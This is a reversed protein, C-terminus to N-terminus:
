NNYDQFAAKLSMFKVFGKWQYSDCDEGIALRRGEWLSRTGALRRAEIVKASMNEITDADIRPRKKPAM